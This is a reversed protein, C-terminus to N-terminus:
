FYYNSSLSNLVVSEYELSRTRMNRPDQYHEPIPNYNDMVEHDTTSNGSEIATKDRPNNADLMLNPNRKTLAQKFFNFSIIFIFLKM